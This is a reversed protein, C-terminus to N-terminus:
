TREGRLRRIETILETIIDEPTYLPDDIAVFEVGGVMSTEGATLNSGGLESMLDCLEYLSCRVAGPDPHIATWLLGLTQDDVPFPPLTTM